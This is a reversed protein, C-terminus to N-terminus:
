GIPRDAKLQMKEDEIAHADALREALALVLDPLRLVRGDSGPLPVHLPDTWRSLIADYGYVAGALAGTVCAVTDTDGGLDIM